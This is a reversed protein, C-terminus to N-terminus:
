PSKRPLETRAAHALARLASLPVDVEALADVFVTVTSGNSHAVGRYGSTEDGRWLGLRGADPWSFISYGAPLEAPKEAPSALLSEVLSPSQTRAAHALADSVTAPSGSIYAVTRFKAREAPDYILGRELILESVPQLPLDRMLEQAELDTLTALAGGPRVLVIRAQLDRWDDFKAADLARTDQGAVLVPPDGEVWDPIEDSGLHELGWWISGVKDSLVSFDAEMSYGVAFMLRRRTRGRPFPEQVLGSLRYQHFRGEDSELWREEILGAEVMLPFNEAWGWLGMEGAAWKKLDGFNVWRGARELVDLVPLWDEDICFRYGTVPHKYNHILESM